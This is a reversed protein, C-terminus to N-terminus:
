NLREKRVESTNIIDESTKIKPQKELKSCFM